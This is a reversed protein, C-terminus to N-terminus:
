NINKLVTLFLSINKRNTLGMMIGFIEKMLVVKIKNRAGLKRVM